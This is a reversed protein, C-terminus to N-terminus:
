AKRVAEQHSMAPLPVAPRSLVTSTLEALLRDAINSGIFLRECEHRCLQYISQAKSENRLDLLLNRIALELADMNGDPFVRCAERKVDEASGVKNSAVVPTGCALAEGVTLGFPEYRSPQILMHARQYLRVMEDGTGNVGGIYRAMRTNLNRLLPTYDSWQSKDGVVLIEVESDLDNLRHSLEVICEVGKRVAIRSVFLLTFRSSDKKSVDLTFHHLDIPNPIITIDEPAVHYDEVLNDAFNRSLAFVKDAVKIHRRQVIYRATLLLREVTRIIFPECTRALQREQRHWRLEGAAHVSPHLCIPPLEQKYRRIASFEIHSFQYIVDYPQGRHAAILKRALRNECRLNAVQGTIFSMLRNRSYWQGWEWSSPECFFRVHKLKVLEEPLSAAHGPMYCDVEVSGHRDIEQLLQNSVGSAGGGKRPM